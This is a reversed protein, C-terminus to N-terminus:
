SLVATVSLNTVSLSLVAGNTKTVTAQLWAGVTITGSFNFAHLGNAISDLFTGRSATLFTTLTDASGASSGVTTQVQGVAVNTFFPTWQIQDASELIVYPQTSQFLTTYPFLPSRPPRRIM